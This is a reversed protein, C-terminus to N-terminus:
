HAEMSVMKWNEAKSSIGGNYKLTINFNTKVNQGSGNNAEYYSKIVYVSDSNKSFQFDSDPFEAEPFKITPKIYDKAIEYAEKGTPIQHSLGENNGPRTAFRFIVAIFIIVFIVIAIIGQRTSKKKEDKDSLYDRKM